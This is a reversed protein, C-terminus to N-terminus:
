RFTRFICNACPNLKIKITLRGNVISSAGRDALKGCREPAAQSM